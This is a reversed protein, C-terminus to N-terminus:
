EIRRVVFDMMKYKEGPYALSQLANGLESFERMIVQGADRGTHTEKGAEWMKAWSRKDHLWRKLSGKVYAEIGGETVAAHFGVVVGGSKSLAIISQLAALQTEWDWQHFIKSIYIIDVTSSLALLQSTPHVIDSEIFNAHFKQRDNLM